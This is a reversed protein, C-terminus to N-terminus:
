VASVAYFWNQMIWGVLFRFNKGNLVVTKPSGEVLVDPKSKPVDQAAVVPEVAALPKPPVHIQATVPTKPQAASVRYELASVRGKLGANSILLYIVAISFAVFLFVFFAILYDLLTDGLLTAM